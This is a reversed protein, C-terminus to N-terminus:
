SLDISRGETAGIQDVLRDLVDNPVADDLSLAMIAEGGISSRGVQAAAINVGAEGFGSGVAGIVGPRDEYRFFAMHDTPEVDVPTNWVEILRERDGPLVTGAVRIPRGDRGIGTVRLVSVFDESHPDSIERVNIGREAAVLPANVFTVPESCVPSLLGKLVSLGLTRGDAEAID